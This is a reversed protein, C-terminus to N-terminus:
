FSKFGLRTFIKCFKCVIFNCYGISNCVNSLEVKKTCGLLFVACINLVLKGAGQGVLAAFPNRGFGESAANLMPEQIERYMRHLANYGGLSAYCM